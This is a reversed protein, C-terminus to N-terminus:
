ISWIIKGRVFIFVPLSLPIFIMHGVVADVPGKHENRFLGIITIPRIVKAGAKLAVRAGLYAGLIQGGIMAAGALWVIQGFFVFYVLASINSAFNFLKAHATADRIPSGRLTVLASAMFSGTGPGFFGDYFGLSPAAMANFKSRSLRPKRSQDLNGAFLLFYIGIGILLVPVLYSLYTADIWTLAMGGLISGACVTALPARNDNISVARQRVFYIAAALTGFSGQLKNTAIAAAPSVGTLLLAPITILGGGGAVADVWGAVVAVLFLLALAEAGVEIM